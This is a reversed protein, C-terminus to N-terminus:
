DETKVNVSMGGAVAIRGSSEPQIDNKRRPGATDDAQSTNVRERLSASDLVKFGSATKDAGTKQPASVTGLRTIEVSQGKQVVVSDDPAAPAIEDAATFANSTGPEPLADNEATDATEPRTAYVAVAGEYCSIRTSGTFDYETGRVSAVAAPNRVTYSVRRNEEHTVKSRIAGTNLFVSVSEGADSAALKELTIRTLSGLKMTSGQYVLVAESKFGTSIIEGEAVADDAHLSIWRGDRNVEAKGRVSIVSAKEAYLPVAAVAAAFILACRINKEM